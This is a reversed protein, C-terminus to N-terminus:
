KGRKKKAVTKSRGSAKAADATGEAPAAAARLDTLEKQLSANQEITGEKFDSGLLWDIGHASRASRSAYGPADEV